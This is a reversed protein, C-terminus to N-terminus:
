RHRRYANQKAAHAIPVIAFRWLVHSDERPVEQVRVKRLARPRMIGHEDEWGGNFWMDALARARTDTM